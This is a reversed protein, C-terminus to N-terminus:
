NTCAGVSKSRKRVNEEQDVKMADSELRTTKANQQKNRDAQKM